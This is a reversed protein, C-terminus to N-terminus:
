CACAAVTATKLTVARFWGTRAVQTIGFADNPETKSQRLALAAHVHRAHLCVVPLGADALTTSRSVALPGTELGVRAFRLDRQRSAAIM